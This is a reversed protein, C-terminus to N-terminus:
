PGTTYITFEMDEDPSGGVTYGGTRGLYMKGVGWQSWPVADSYVGADDVYFDGGTPGTLIRLTHAANTASWHHLTIERWSGIPQILRWEAVVGAGDLLEIHAQGSVMYVWLRAAVQRGVTVTVAQQVGIEPGISTLHMSETSGGAHTPTAVKVATLLHSSGGPNSLLWPSGAPPLPDIGDEIDGDTLLDTESTGIVHIFHGASDTDGILYTGEAVTSSHTGLAAPWAGAPTPTQPWAGAWPDPVTGGPSDDLHLGGADQIPRPPVDTFRDNPWRTTHDYVPIATWNIPPPMAPSSFWGSPIPTELDEKWSFNDPYSYFTGPAMTKESPHGPGLLIADEIDIVDELDLDVIFMPYTYHPRVHPTSEQTLRILYGIMFVLNTYNFANSDVTVGFTHVKQAENMDGTSVFNEMWTPNSIYDEVVVGTCIPAFQAISDGVVYAVGTDPNTAVDLAVPFMYSRVVLEDGDDQVLVRNYDTNFPTRIDTIEGAKESFPLGLLVQCATRVNNITPGNWFAYWLGQVASLYDINDTRTEWDDLNFGVRSGFNAEIAEKNDLYTTEAWSIDPPTESDFIRWHLGTSGVGVGNPLAIEELELRTASTVTLLRYRDGGIWLLHDSLDTGVAGLMAVFDSGASDFFKGSPPAVTDGDFGYGKRDLYSELLNIAQVERGDVATTTEVIFDNNGVLIAPAGTVNDVDIVEQLSSLDLVKDDVPLYNRRLLGYFRVTYRDSDALYTTLGSSDFCLKEDRAGYVYCSVRVHDNEDDDYVDFIATDAMTAKQLTFDTSRSSVMPRVQWFQPRQINPPKYGTVTATAGSVSGAITEGVSFPGTPNEVVLFNWGGDTVTATDTSVAGTIVDGNVFTGTPAAAYVRADQTPPLPDKTIIHDQRTRAIEYCEGDLILQHGNQVLASVTAGTDYAYEGFGPTASYGSLDVTTDITAAYDVHDYNPEEYFFDYCRWRRQFLRQIDFLSKAYDHQWLELMDGALVQSAGSWVTEIKDRDAVMVWFNSLYDWIFSLDPVIGLPAGTPSVNLLVEAPVSSLSGDSGLVFPPLIMSTGDNVILEVTFLGSTDPLMTGIEFVRGSWHGLEWPEPDDEIWNYPGTDVLRYNMVDAISYVSTGVPLATIVWAAGDWVALEGSGAVWPGGGVPVPGILYADDLVPAGPEINVYDLVTVISTPNWNGEWASQKLISWSVNTTNHVFVHDVAVFYSGDAHIYKITSSLDEIFAVDGVVADDFDGASGNVRNTYGSADAPTDAVGTLWMESNEPAGVFTWWYRLSGGEPDYSNRGDFAAYKYLTSTQDVGPDAVPRYNPIVEKSSLRLCDFCITTPNAPTGYVEIVTGDPTGAPTEFAQTTVKLQHGIVPILTTPTVYINMRGTTGNITVRFTYYAAGADFLDASDILHAYDTGLGDTAMALGGNESLLLGIMYGFQNHVAVWVREDVLSTFDAPLATPLITFQMSFTPPTSLSISLGSDLSDDSFLCLDNAGNFTYQPAIFWRSFSVEPHAAITLMTADTPECFDYIDWPDSAPLTTVGYVGMGYLSVGYVAM